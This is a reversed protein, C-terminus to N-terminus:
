SMTIEKMAIASRAVMQSCSLGGPNGAKIWGWLKVTVYNQANPDVKMTWELTGGEWPHSGGPLLKRAPQDLGGHFAESKEETLGHKQESFEDGFTIDDVVATPQDATLYERWNRGSESQQDRRM